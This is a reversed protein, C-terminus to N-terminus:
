EGSGLDVMGRSEIELSQQREGQDRSLRNNDGYHFLVFECESIQPVKCEFLKSRVSQRWWSSARTINISSSSSTLLYTLRLNIYRM